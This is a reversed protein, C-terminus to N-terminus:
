DPRTVPKENLLYQFHFWDKCINADDTGAGHAAADGLNGNLRAAGHQQKIQPSL